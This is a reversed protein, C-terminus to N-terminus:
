KLNTPHVIFEFDSELKKLIEIVEALYPSLNSNADIGVYVDTREKGNGLSVVDMRRVLNFINEHSVFESLDDREEVIESVVTSMYDNKKRKLRGISAKVTMEGVVKGGYKEVIVKKLKKSDVIGDAEVVKRAEQAIRWLEYARQDTAIDLAVLRLEQVNRLIIRTEQTHGHRVLDFAAYLFKVGRLLIALATGQAATLASGPDPTLRNYLEKFKGLERSYKASVRGYNDAFYDNAKDFDNLISSM